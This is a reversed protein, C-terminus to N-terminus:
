SVSRLLFSQGAEFGLRRSHSLARAHTYSWSWAMRLRGHAALAERGCCTCRVCVAGACGGPIGIAHRSCLFVRMDLVPLGPHIPLRTHTRTHTHTHTHVEPVLPKYYEEYAVNTPIAKEYSVHKPANDRRAAKAGGGRKNAAAGEATTADDDGNMRKKGKRWGM